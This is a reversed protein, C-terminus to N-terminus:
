LGWGTASKITGHQFQFPSCSSGSGPFGDRKITGHQFQFRMVRALCLCLRKSKITGHQFQFRVHSAPIRAKKRVKLRVM